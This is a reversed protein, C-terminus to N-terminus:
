ISTIQKFIAIPLVFIRAWYTHLNSLVSQILVLRGAYSLKRCGLSRIRKSFKDVLTSCELVSLKRATIPLGLYKFPLSGKVMGTVKFVEDLIVKDVGNSYIISKGKNM